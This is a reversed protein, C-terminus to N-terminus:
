RCPDGSAIGYQFKVQGDYYDWKKELRHRAEVVERPVSLSRVTTSPSDYALNNYISASTLGASAVLTLLVSLM